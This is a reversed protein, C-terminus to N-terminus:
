EELSSRLERVAAWWRATLSDDTTVARLDGCWCLVTADGERWGALLAWRADGHEAWLAVRADDRLRVRDLTQLRRRWRAAAADGEPDTLERADVRGVVATVAGSWPRLAGRAAETFGDGTAPLLLLAAGRAVAERTCALADPDDFLAGELLVVTPTECLGLGAAPGYDYTFRGGEGLARALATGMEHAAGVEGPHGTPQTAVLLAREAGPKAAAHLALRDVADTPRDLTDDRDCSYLWRARDRSLAALADLHPGVVPHLREVVRRADDDPSFGRPLEVPRGVQLWRWAGPTTPVPRADRLADRTAAPLLTLDHERADLLMGPPTNPGYWCLWLRPRLAGPHPGSSAVLHVSWAETVGAISWAAVGPLRAHPATARLAPADPHLTNWASAVRDAFARTFSVAQPRLTRLHWLANPARVHLSPWDPDDPLLSLLSACRAAARPHRRHLRAVLALAEPHAGFRMRLADLTTVAFARAAAVAPPAPALALADLAADVVDSWAIAAVRDAPFSERPARRDPTVYVLLRQADPHHARSWALYAALQGDGEDADLKNEVLVVWERGSADRAHCRIDPARVGDGLAQERLVRAGDAVLTPPATPAVVRAGPLPDLSALARHVLATLVAVGLGHDGGPQAPHPDLLWALFRTHPREKRATALVELPDFAPAIADLALLDPDALLAELASPRPASSM